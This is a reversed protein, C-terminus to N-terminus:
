RVGFVEEDHDDDGAEDPHDRLYDAVGEYGAAAARAALAEAAERRELWRLWRPASLPLDVKLHRR